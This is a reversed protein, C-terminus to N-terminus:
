WVKCILEGGLHNKRAEYNTALGKSTSIISMGLGGFVSSINKSDIYVRLTPKSIRIINTLVPKKDQYKLTVLIQNTKKDISLKELYGNDILIGVLQEIIKARSLTVNIKRALYGNKIRILSDSIQDNTM